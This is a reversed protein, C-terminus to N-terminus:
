AECQGQCAKIKFGPGSCSIEALTDWMMARDEWAGPHFAARSASDVSCSMWLESEDCSREPSKLLVTSSFFPLISGPFPIQGLRPHLAQREWAPEKVGPQLNSCHISSGQWLKQQRLSWIGVRWGLLRQCCMFFALLKALDAKGVRQQPM